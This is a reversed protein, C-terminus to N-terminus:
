PSLGQEIRKTRTSLQTETIADSTKPVGDTKKRELTRCARDSIYPNEFETLWELVEHPTHASEALRFPIDLCRDDVLKWVTCISSAQNDAVAMRVECCPHCSLIDLLEPSANANEAVREVVASGAILCLLELISHPTEPCSALQILINDIQNPQEPGKQGMFQAAASAKGLNRLLEHVRRSSLGSYEIGAYAFIGSNLSDDSLDMASAAEKLKKILKSEASGFETKKLIEKM